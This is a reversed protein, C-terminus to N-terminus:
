LFGSQNIPLMYYMQNALLCMSTASTSTLYSGRLQEIGSSNKARIYVHEYRKMDHFIKHRQPSKVASGVSAVSTLTTHLLVQQVYRCGPTSLIELIYM